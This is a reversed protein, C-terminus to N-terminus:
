RRARRSNAEGHLLNWPTYNWSTVGAPFQPWYEWCPRGAGHHIKGVKPLIGLWALRNANGVIVDRIALPYAFGLWAALEINRWRQVGDNFEKIKSEIKTETTEGTRVQRLGV